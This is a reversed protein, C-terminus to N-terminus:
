DLTVWVPEVNGNGEVVLMLQSPASKKRLKNVSYEDAGKTSGSTFIFRNEGIERASRVHWHGTVVYDYHVGDLASHKAIINDDNRSDLDGHLALFNKGNIRFGHKYDQAQIYTTNSINSNKIFSEVGHNIVKVAHDGDINKDKDTIRDHNGAIGAYTVIFGESNLYAIIKVIVDVAKTIQESFTFEANYGQSFRMSAHEIVDGLNMIHIRKVGYMRAREIVKALYQNIRKLTVNFNYQNSPIDVLAGIHLDSLFMILENELGESKEVKLDKFQFDSFDYEQFAKSIETAILSFDILQRKGKNIERLYIQNERKEHSIEGVLNKISVLKSDAVLDAHSKEDPLEGISKQYSKVLCRYAESNESDYFGEEEMMKVIKNWSARRSPSSDQLAKKIKVVTELHEQTVEIKQGDKNKYSRM